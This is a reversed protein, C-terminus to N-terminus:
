DAPPPPPPSPLDPPPPPVPARPPAAAAPTPAAKKSRVIKLLVFSGIGVVLIIIGLVPRYFVWAIGITILSLGLALLGAVIGTGIGAINGLIPLVDLIVSLPRLITTLGVFMLVLGVLRLIWTLTRNSSQAAKFMSAATHQGERLMLLQDGAETQYGTFGNGQQKAVVSVTTPPVMEFTIRLDGIRPSSPSYGIYLGGGHFKARRGLAEPIEYTKQNLELPKFATIQNVLRQSLSYGGLTVQTATQDQSHYPMSGPNGHGQPKKFSGSDIVQPVM